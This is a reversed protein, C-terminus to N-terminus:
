ELSPLTEFTLNVECSPLNTRLRECGDSTLKTDVLDFTEMKSHSHFHAVGEDGVATYSLNLYKLNSLQALYSVGADSIDTGSLDLSELTQLRGIEKLYEDSIPMGRFSLSKLKSLEQLVGLSSPSLSPDILPPQESSSAGAPTSILLGGSVIVNETLPEGPKFHLKELHPLTSLEKLLHESVSSVGGFEVERLEQMKGLLEIGAATLQTEFLHLEQIPQRSLFQLDETSADQLLRVAVVTDFGRMREEGLLDRFWEPGAQETMVSPSPAFLGLNVDGHREMFAMQQRYRSGIVVMPVIVVVALLALLWRFLRRARPQSPTRSDITLPNDNM